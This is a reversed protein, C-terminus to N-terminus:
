LLLSVSNGKYGWREDCFPCVVTATIKIDRKDCFWPRVIKKVGAEGGGGFFFFFFFLFFFFFFFFNQRRILGKCFM